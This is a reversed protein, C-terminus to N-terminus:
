AIWRDVGWGEVLAGLEGPPASARRTAVAMTIASKGKPAMVARWEWREPSSRRRERQNASRGGLLRGLAIPAAHANNANM